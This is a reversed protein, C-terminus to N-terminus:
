ALYCPPHPQPTTNYQTFFSQYYAAPAATTEITPESIVVMPVEYVWTISQQVTLLNSKPTNDTQKQFQKKLYCKGNCQLDPATRNECLTRAIFSQNVQFNLFVATYAGSHFLIAVLAVM